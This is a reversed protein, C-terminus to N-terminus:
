KVLTMRRTEVMSDSQLRYLYVGSSLGSADFSVRHEGAPMVGDVLVAVERGLLDYVSLRTRGIESIQYGIETTPNFPNPYNQNLTISAPSEEREAPQEISTPTKDLIDGSVAHVLAYYVETVSGQPSYYVSVINIFWFPENPINGEYGYQTIDIGAMQMVIIMADEPMRDIFTDAGARMVVDVAQSSSIITQPLTNLGSLSQDEIEELDVFGGSMTAAFSKTSVHDHWLYTWFQSTGNPRDDNQLMQFGFISKLGANTSSNTVMGRIEELKMHSHSVPFLNDLSQMDVSVNQIVSHQVVIPEGHKGFYATATEEDSPDSTAIAYAYYTGPRVGTITFSGNENLTAIGAYRPLDDWFSLNSFSTLFVYGYNFTSLEENEAFNLQGAVSATGFASATTYTL